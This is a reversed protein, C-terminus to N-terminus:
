KIAPFDRPVVLDVSYSWIIPNCHLHDDSADVCDPWGTCQENIPVTHQAASQSIKTNKRGKTNYTRFHAAEHVVTNVDFRAPLYVM